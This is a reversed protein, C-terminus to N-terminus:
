RAYVGQLSAGVGDCAESESVILYRDVRRFRASCDPPSPEGPFQAKYDADAKPDFDSYLASFGEVLLAGEFGGSPKSARSMNVTFAKVHMGGHADRTISVTSDEDRSWDGLWDVKATPAPAVKALDTARLWGVTQRTGGYWACAWGNEIKGVLVRDKGIVYSKAQCVASAPCGDGDRRFYARGAVTVDYTEAGSTLAQEIFDGYDCHVPQAQAHATAAMSLAALFATGIIVLRRM